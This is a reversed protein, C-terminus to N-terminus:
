VDLAVAGPPLGLEAVLDYLLDPGRPNLSEDLAALFAEEIRPYEDYFQELRGAAVTADYPGHGHPDVVGQLADVPRLRLGVQGGVVEVVAARRVGQAERELPGPVDGERPVPLTQDAHRAEERVADGVRVEDVDPRAGAVPPPPDGGRHDAQQQRADGPLVH